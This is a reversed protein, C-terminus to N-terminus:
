VPMYIVHIPFIWLALLFCKAQDALDRCSFTILEISFQKSLPLLASSSFFTFLYTFHLHLVNLLDVSVTSQVPVALSESATVSACLFVVPREGAWARFSTKFLYFQMPMAHLDCPHVPWAVLLRCCGRSLWEFVTSSKYLCVYLSGYEVCANLCATQRGKM